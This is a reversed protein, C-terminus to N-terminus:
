NVCTTQYLLHHPVIGAIFAYFPYALPMAEVVNGRFIFMERSEDTTPATIDEHSVYRRARFM